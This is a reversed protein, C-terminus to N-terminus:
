QKTIKVRVPRVVKEHLRYGREIEEAVTGPPSESAIEGLSEMFAPDFADGLKVRIRLLGHRKMVDETQARIMYIGKEMGVSQDPSRGGTPTPASGQKESYSIALDFSDLVGILGQMLEEHGYKAFEQLRQLEEKKYNLFDAKARQWGALYEDRKKECAVLVDAPMMQGNEQKEEQVEPKEDM